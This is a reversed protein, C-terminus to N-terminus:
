KKLIKWCQVTNDVSINGGGVILITLYMAFYILPLEAGGNGVSYHWYVAILMNFALIFASFRTMFGIILFLAILTEALGSLYLSLASGLGIPNPFAGFEGKIIMGMKSVGHLVFMMAGSVVRLVLLGFNFVTNKM